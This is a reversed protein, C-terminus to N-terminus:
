VFVGEQSSFSLLVLVLMGGQASFPGAARSPHILGLQSRLEVGEGKGVEVVQCQSPSLIPHSLIGQNLSVALKIFCFSHVCACCFLANGM